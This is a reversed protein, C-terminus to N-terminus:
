LSKNYPQEKKEKEKMALLIRTFYHLSGEEEKSRKSFGPPVIALLIRTLFCTPHKAACKDSSTRAWPVAMKTM